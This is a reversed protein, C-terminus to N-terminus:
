YRHWRTVGCCLEVDQGLRCSRMVLVLVCMCKAFVMKKMRVEVIVVVVDMHLVL